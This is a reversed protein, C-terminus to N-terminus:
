LVHSDYDKIYRVAKELHPVLFPEGFGVLNVVDLPGEKIRGEFGKVFIDWDMHTGKVGIDLSQPCYTCKLNCRDTVELTLGKKHGVLYHYRLIVKNWLFGVIPSKESLANLRDLLAIRKKTSLKHYLKYLM